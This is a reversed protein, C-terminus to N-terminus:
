NWDISSAPPILLLLASSHPPLHSTRKVGEEEDKNQVGGTKRECMKKEGNCGGKIIKRSGVIHRPGCM